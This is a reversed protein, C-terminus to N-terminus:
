NNGRLIERRKFEGNEKILRTNAVLLWVSHRKHSGLSDELQAIEADKERLTNLLARRSAFFHRFQQLTM